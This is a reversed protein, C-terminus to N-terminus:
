PHDLRRKEGKESKKGVRNEFISVCACCAVFAIDDRNMTVDKMVFYKIRM